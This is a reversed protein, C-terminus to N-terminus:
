LLVPQSFLMVNLYLLVTNKNTFKNHISNLFCWVHVYIKWMFHTPVQTCWGQELQRGKMSLICVIYSTLRGPIIFQDEYLNWAQFKPTKRSKMFYHKFNFWVTYMYNVSTDGKLLKVHVETDPAYKHYKISWVRFGLGKLEHEFYYM